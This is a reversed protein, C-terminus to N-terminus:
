RELFILLQGYKEGFHPKAQKVCGLLLNWQGRSFSEHGLLVENCRWQEASICLNEKGSFIVAKGQCENWQMWAIYQLMINRVKWQGQSTYKYCKLARCPLCRESGLVVDWPLTDFYRNVVNLHWANITFVANWVNQQWENLNLVVHRIGKAMCKKCTSCKMHVDLQWASFTLVVNSQWANPVLVVNWQSQPYASWQWANPCAICKM